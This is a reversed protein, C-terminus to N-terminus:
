ECKYGALEFIEAPNLASLELVSKGSEKMAKRILYNGARYGIFARGDPHEGSVWHNNEADKPHQLIEEVWHEAEDPYANVDHRIGTYEEAFVM